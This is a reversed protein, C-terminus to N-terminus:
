SDWRFLLCQYMVILEGWCKMKVEGSANKIGDNFLLHIWGQMFKWTDPFLHYFFSRGESGGDLSEGDWLTAEPGKACM